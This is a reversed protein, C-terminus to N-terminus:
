LNAILDINLGQYEFKGAYKFGNKEYFALANSNTAQVGGWLILHKRGMEKLISKMFELLRKGLGRSQYADAVSPALLAFDHDNLAVGYRNWREVDYPFMQLKAIFYAVVKDTSPDVVILMKYHQEQQLMEELADKAFSHPAFRQRTQKSLSAYYTELAAADNPLAERILFEM